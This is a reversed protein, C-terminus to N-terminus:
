ESRIARIPDLRAARLAPLLGFVLGCVASVGLSLLISETQFALPVKLLYKIGCVILYSCGVGCLGGLLCLFLAECLFTQVIVRKKAGLARYIGIEKTRADLSSVMANMVGLGGVVVSIGAIGGILLAVADTIASFSDIYQNLNEYLFAQQDTRNLASLVNEVDDQSGDMNTLLKDTQITPDLEQLTTYPIYVLHPLQSGLMASLGASQSRIVACIKMEELRQNVTVYLTKGVVNTRQYVKEALDADIVAVKAAARVQGASPLTGHCVELHFVDALCEDVGLIGAATRLNRLQVTGSVLALPMVAKVSSAGAVAAVAEDSVSTGDKRYFAVGGIGIREMEGQVSERALFGFSLVASVSTIGVCIALVCLKTRIGARVVNKAALVFLDIPYM